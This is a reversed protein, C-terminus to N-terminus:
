TEYDPENYLEYIINLYKSYKKCVGNLTKKIRNKPEIGLAARVVNCHWDKHLWHVVSHNYFRPHFNHWGFSIGRLITPQGSSDALQTGIVKLSSQAFTNASVICILLPLIKKLL